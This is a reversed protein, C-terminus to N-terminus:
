VAGFYPPVKKKPSAMLIKKNKVLGSRRDNRLKAAPGRLAEESSGSM